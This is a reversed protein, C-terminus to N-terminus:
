KNNNYDANRYRYLKTIDSVWLRFAAVDEIWGFRPSTGYDGFMLVAIMWLVQLQEYVCSEMGAPACYHDPCCISHPDPELGAWKVVYEALGNYSTVSDLADAYDIREPRTEESGDPKFQTIM